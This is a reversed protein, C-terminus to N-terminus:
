RDTASARSPSKTTVISFGESALGRGKPKLIVACPTAAIIPAEITLVDTAESVGRAPQQPRLSPHGVICLQDGMPIAEAIRMGPRQHLKHFAVAISYCIYDLKAPIIAPLEHNKVDARAGWLFWDM